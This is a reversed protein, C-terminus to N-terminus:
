YQRKLGSCTNHKADCDIVANHRMVHCTRSAYASQLTRVGEDLTEELQSGKMLLAAPCDFSSHWFIKRGKTVLVLLLETRLQVDVGSTVIRAVCQWPM